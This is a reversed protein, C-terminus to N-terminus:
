HNHTHMITNRKKKDYLCEYLCRMQILFALLAALLGINVIRGQPSFM